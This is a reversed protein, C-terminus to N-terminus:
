KSKSKSSPKATEESLDIKTAAKVEDLEQKIAQTDDNIGQIEKKVTRISEGFGRALEPLKKGGFFLLALLVILPIEWGNFMFIKNLYEFLKLSMIMSTLNGVL